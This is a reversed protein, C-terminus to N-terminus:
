GKLALIKGFEVQVILIERKQPPKGLDACYCPNNHGMSSETMAKACVEVVCGTIYEFKEDIRKM